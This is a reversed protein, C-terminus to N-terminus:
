GRRSAADLVAGGIARNVPRRTRSLNPCEIYRNNGIYRIVVLREV